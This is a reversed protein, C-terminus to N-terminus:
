FYYRTIKLFTQVCKRSLLFGCTVSLEIAMIYLVVHCFVVYFILSQAVCIGYFGLTFELAESPYATEPGCGHCLYETVTLWIM